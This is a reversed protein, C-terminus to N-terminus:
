DRAALFRGGLLPERTPSWIVESREGLEVDSECLVALTGCWSTCFM